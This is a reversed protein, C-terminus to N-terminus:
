MNYTIAISLAVWFAIVVAIGAAIVLFVLFKNKRVLVFVAVATVVLVLSFLLLLFM